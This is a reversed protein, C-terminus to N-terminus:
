ADARLAVSPDIRTAHRAPRYAAAATAALVIAVAVTFAAADVVTVTQLHILASLSKLACFAVILGIAAGGGALRACQQLVLRVVAAASAGLAMRIGIERTRQALMYLLVGYVGSVSLVLALGALLVGIWSAAQLPYIQLARMEELPLAEFVQPDNAVRRFEDQLDAPRPEQRTRGRILL